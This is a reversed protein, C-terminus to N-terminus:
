ASFNYTELMPKVMDVVNYIAFVAMIIGTVVPGRKLTNGIAMISAALAYAIEPETTVSKLWEGFAEDVDQNFRYYRWISIVTTAVIGTAVAIGAAASVKGWLMTTPICAYVVGAILLVLTRTVLKQVDKAFQERQSPPLARSMVSADRQLSRESDAYVEELAVYEEDSLVKRASQLVEQPNDASAVLYCFELYDQGHEETLIRDVVAMGDIEQPYGAAVGEATRGGTEQELYPRIVAYNEEIISAVRPKLEQETIAERVDRQNWDMSCGMMSFILLFCVTDTVIVKVNKM